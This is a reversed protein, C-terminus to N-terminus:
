LQMTDNKKAKTRTSKKITKTAKSPSQAAKQKAGSNRRGRVKSVAQMRLILDDEASIPEARSLSDLRDMLDGGEESMAGVAAQLSQQSAASRGLANSLLFLFLLRWRPM